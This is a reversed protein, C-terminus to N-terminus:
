PTIGCLLRVERSLTSVDIWGLALTGSREDWVISPRATALSGPIERTPLDVETAGALTSLDLLAYRLPTNLNNSWALALWTRGAHTFGLGDVLNTASFGSVGTLRVTRTADGRRGFLQVAGVRDRPLDTTVSGLLAVVGTGPIGILRWPDMAVTTTRSMGARRMVVLREQTIAMADDGSTWGDRLMQPGFLEALTVAPTVADSTEAIVRGSAGEIRVWRLLTGDASLGMVTGPREVSPGSQIPDFVYSGAGGQAAVQLGSGFVVTRGLRHTALPNDRRGPRRLEDEFDISMVRQPNNWTARLLSTGRATPLLGLAISDPYLPQQPPGEVAGLVVPGAACSTSGADPAGTDATLGADRDPAGSDARGADPRATTADRPGAGADTGRQADDPAAAGADSRGGGRLELPLVDAACGVGSLSSVILCVVVVRM